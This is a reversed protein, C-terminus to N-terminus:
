YFMVSHELVKFVIYLVSYTIVTSAAKFTLASFIINMLHYQLIHRFIHPSIFIM